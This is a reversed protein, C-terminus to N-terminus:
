FSVPVTVPFLRTYLIYTMIIMVCYHFILFKKWLQIAWGWSPYLLFLLWVETIEQLYSATWVLAPKEEETVAGQDVSNDEPTESSKIESIVSSPQKFLADVAAKLLKKGQNADDCFSSLHLVFRNWFYVVHTMRNRKYMADYILLSLNSWVFAYIHKICLYNNGVVLM